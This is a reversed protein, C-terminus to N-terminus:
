KNKTNSNESNVETNVDTNEEAENNHIVVSNDKKDITAIFTKGPNLVINEGAKTTYITKSNEDAKSWNIEILKGNTLLYGDGSGTNYVTLRGLDGTVKSDAYQIIVNKPMYEKGDSEDVVNQGNRVILYSDSDPLYEIDETYHKFFNLTVKDLPISEYANLKEKNESHDFEYFENKSNLDYKYKESQEIMKEFTTYGNHPRRKPVEKNRFFTIGELAIGDLDNVGLKPIQSYGDPSGGFHVYIANYEHATNVFYIRASRVPGINFSPYNSKFIGMYRTFEGEAKYEYLIDTSNLGAQPIADPHNDFMVAFARKNNIDESEIEEGTLSAYYKVIEPEKVEVKKEESEDKKNCSILLLSLFILFFIYINKRVKM